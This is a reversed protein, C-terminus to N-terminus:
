ISFLQRCSTERRIGKKNREYGLVAEADGKGRKWGKRSVLRRPAAFVDWSCCCRRSRMLMLLFLGNAFVTGPFAFRFRIVTQGPPSQRHHPFPSHPPKLEGEGGPAANATHRLMTTASAHRIAQRRSLPDRIRNPGHRWIEVASRNAHKLTFSFPSTCIQM